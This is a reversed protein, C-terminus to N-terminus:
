KKQVPAILFAHRRQWEVRIEVQGDVRSVFRILQELSFRDLRGRCLDSLRPQDTGLLLAAYIQSWGHIREVVLHALHRKLAPIPDEAKTTV